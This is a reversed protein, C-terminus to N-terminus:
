RGSPIEIQGDHKQMHQSSIVTSVNAASQMLPAKCNSGLPEQAQGGHLWLHLMGDCVAAAQAYQSSECHLLVLEVMSPCM